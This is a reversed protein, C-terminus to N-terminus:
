TWLETVLKKADIGPTVVVVRGRSLIAGINM